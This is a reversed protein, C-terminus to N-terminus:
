KTQKTAYESIAYLAANIMPGAVFAWPGFDVTSVMEIAKALAASIGTWLIVAGVNKLNILKFQWKDSIIKM